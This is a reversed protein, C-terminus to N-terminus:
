KLLYPLAISLVVVIVMGYTLIKSAHKLLGKKNQTKKDILSNYLQGGDLPGIPLANFIAVNFNIFWLWFFLNAPITYYSGFIPSTYKDAMFDSYPVMGQVFTPPALLGLPSTFIMSNYRNLVEKPDAVPTISVGLIGKGPERQEPLTAQRTYKEGSDSAIGITIPKGLNNNLNENLQVPDRIDVGQIQQITDGKALGISEALSGTNVNTIVVGYLNQDMPKTIILTSTILLIVVLSIAALVINTMPGATLISSKQKTSIRNLEDREINVFAGIPIGLFLVLGTSEVKVGYVRAIIGHGAEHVIITVVLAIWGEWIPLYPNLGPILLNAQPGVGRAGERITESSFLAAVSGIILFLAMITILPMLYTNFKAYFRAASTKSIRDFFKLGYPTHILILPLHLDFKIKSQQEM